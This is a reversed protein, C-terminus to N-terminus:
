PRLLKLNLEVSIQPQIRVIKSAYISNKVTKITARYLSWVRFPFLLLLVSSIGIGFISQEFTLTFDFQDCKVGPGFNRDAVVSCPVAM